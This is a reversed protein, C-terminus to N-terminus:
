GTKEGNKESFVDMEVRDLQKNIDRELRAAGDSDKSYFLSPIKRLFWLSEQYKSAAAVIATPNHDRATAAVTLQALNHRVQAVIAKVLGDVDSIM